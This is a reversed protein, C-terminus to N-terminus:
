FYVALTKSCSNSELGISQPLLHHLLRFTQGCVYVTAFLLILVHLLQNFFLYAIEKTCYESIIAVDRNYTMKGDFQM